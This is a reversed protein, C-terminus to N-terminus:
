LGEAWVVAKARGAEDLLLGEGARMNDAAHAPNSTAPIACTVAPHSIIYKLLLQAASEIGYDAAWAPLPKGALRRFHTGEGFPRNILTAVGHHAAADLLSKKAARAFLSYNFQVFDFSGTAVLRELEPHSADTYHTIGIYRIRGEAKWAQLTKLHTQLDVLNHIQMLDIQTCRMKRFSDEMQRIGEDRGTTWVKTAYFFDDGQPLATTLTGVTEEAHGYMPSSDIFRGGATHFTQLVETLPRSAPDAVDFTQWTGLGLTPLLEGTSPIPRSLTPKLVTGM